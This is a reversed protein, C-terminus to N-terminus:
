QSGEIVQLFRAVCGALSFEVSIRKRGAEGMTKILEPCDLFSKIAQALQEPRQAGVIFGTVGDEIIEPLGGRSSGIVPLGFGSAELASTPLPDESRSPVICLDFEAYIDRPNSVFGRWQVYEELNLDSVKRKLLETYHPAGGGFIRLNVRHGDQKLLALADLLDEHGKWPGIQGVIGLRLTDEKIVAPKPNAPPLGNYIVTIRSGPIGLAMVSRAVAESVCVVMNVRKAIAQFVLRYPRTNPPIEHLWFIDRRLNLFPM